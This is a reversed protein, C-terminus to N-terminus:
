ISDYVNEQLYTCDEYDHLCWECHSGLYYFTIAWAVAAGIIFISLYKFVAMYGGFLIHNNKLRIIFSGIGIHFIYKQIDKFILLAM